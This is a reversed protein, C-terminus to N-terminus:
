FRARIANELMYWPLFMQQVPLAHSGAQMIDPCPPLFGSRRLFLFAGAYLLLTLLLLRRAAQAKGPHELM